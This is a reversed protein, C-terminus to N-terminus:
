RQIAGRFVKEGGDDESEKARDIRVEAETELRRM